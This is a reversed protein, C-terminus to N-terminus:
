CTEKLTGTACTSNYYGKANSGSSCYQGATTGTICTCTAMYGGGGPVGAGTTCCHMCTNCAGAGNTCGATYDGTACHTDEECSGQGCFGTEGWGTYCASIGGGRASAVSLDVLEPREYRNKKKM